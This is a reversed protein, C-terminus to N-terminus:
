LGGSVIESVRINPGEGLSEMVYPTWNKWGEPREVILTDPGIIVTELEFEDWATLFRNMEAGTSDVVSM